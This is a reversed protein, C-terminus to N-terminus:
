PLLMDLNLFRSARLARAAAGDQVADFPLEGLCPAALAAKLTALNEAYAGMTAGPTNAIWGALQLGRARIAEATLLAHNLCGLRMGVVLVVPLHLRLPIEALSRTASLPVLFGGAGEVVVADARESLQDFAAAIVDLAPEIGQRAAAIHPAIAEDLCYPNVLHLPFRHATLEQFAAVDENLALGAIQVMGAAVPKMGAANCGRARLAALLACAAHTKGIGTDTGTVFCHPMHEVELPMRDPSTRGGQAAGAM